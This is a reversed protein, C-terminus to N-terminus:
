KFLMKKNIYKYIYKHTHTCVYMHVHTHRHKFSCATVPYGETTQERRGTHIHTGPVSSLYNARAALQEEWQSM